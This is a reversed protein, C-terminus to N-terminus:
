VERMMSLRKQIIQRPPAGAPLPQHAWNDLVQGGSYAMVGGVGGRSSFVGAEVLDRVTFVRRSLLYHCDALSKVVPTNSNIDAKVSNICHFIVAMQQLQVVLSHMLDSCIPVELYTLLVPVTLVQCAIIFTTLCSISLLNMQRYVRLGILTAFYQQM